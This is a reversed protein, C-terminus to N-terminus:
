EQRTSYGTGTSAPHDPGASDPGRLEDGVHETEAHPAVLAARAAEREASKKNPGSGAGLVEDGVRVEVTYLRQHDPGEIAVVHYDPREGRRQRIEQLKSKPDQFANESTPALEVLGELRPGLWRRVAALAAEHGADLYIAALCAEVACALNRPRDRGGQSEEGKGLRIATGIGLSRGVDALSDTGVVLARAKSLRDESADPFSAYLLESSCLQLVADGLFELRENHSGGREHAYSSHTLAVDLLTPDAFTHGVDIV